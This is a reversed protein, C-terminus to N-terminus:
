HKYEDIQLFDNLWILAKKKERELIKKKPKKIGHTLILDKGIIGPEADGFFCLIRVTANPLKVEWIGDGLSRFKREDRPIGNQLIRDLLALIRERDEDRLSSLYEKVLCSENIEIAYLDCALGSELKVVRM